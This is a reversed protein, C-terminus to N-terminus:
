CCFEEEKPSRDKPLNRVVIIGTKEANVTGNREPTWIKRQWEQDGSRRAVHGQDENEIRGDKKQNSQGLSLLCHVSCRRGYEPVECQHQTTRYSAFFSERRQWTTEHCCWVAAGWLVVTESDASRCAASSGDQLGGASVWSIASARQALWVAGPKDACLCLPLADSLPSCWCRWVTTVMDAVAFPPPLIHGEGWHVQFTNM